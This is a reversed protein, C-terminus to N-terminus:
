NPELLCGSAQEYGKEEAEEISTFYITNEENFTSKCWPFYYKTGQSSARIEISVESEGSELKRQKLDQSSIIDIKSPEKIQNQASLRGLTFTLVLSGLFAIIIITKQKHTM